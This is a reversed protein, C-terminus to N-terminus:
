NLTVVYRTWLLMLDSRSLLGFHTIGLLLHVIPRGLGSISRRRLLRHVVLLRRWWRWWLLLLIPTTQGSTQGCEAAAPEATFGAFATKVAEVATVAALEWGERREM